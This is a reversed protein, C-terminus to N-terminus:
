GRRTQIGRPTYLDSTFNPSIDGMVVKCRGFNGARYFHRCTSCKREGRSPEYNAKWKPVKIM